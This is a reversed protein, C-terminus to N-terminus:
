ATGNRCFRCSLVFRPKGLAALKKLVNHLPDGEQAAAVEDLGDIVLRQDGNIPADPWRLFSTARVFRCDEREGLKEMLWTKGLGPDGLVVLPQSFKDLIDSELEEHSNGKDDVWTLRRTIYIPDFM